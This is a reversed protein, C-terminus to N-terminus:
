RVTRSVEYWKNEGSVYTLTMAAVQGAGNGFTPAGASSFTCNTTLFTASWSNGLLVLMQGDYYGTALTLNIAPAGNGSVRILGIDPTVTSGSALNLQTTQVGMGRFQVSNVAAKVEISDQPYFGSKLRWNGNWTPLIQWENLRLVGDQSDMYFSNGKTTFYINNTNNDNHNPGFFGGSYVTNNRVIIGFQFREIYNSHVTEGVVSPDFDFGNGAPVGVTGTQSQLLNGIYSNGGGFRNKVCLDGVIKNKYIMNAQQGLSGDQDIGIAFHFGALGIENFEILHNYAGPVPTGTPDDSKLLIATNSGPNGALFRNHHIHAHAGYVNLCRQAGNGPRFLFGSVEVNSGAIRMLDFTQGNSTLLYAGLPSKAVLKMGSLSVLIPATIKYFSREFELTGATAGFSALAALIAATDDTVGDGVAGFDEVSVKARMKDQLWRKIAGAGAQIFGIVSSGASSVLYTIFGQVSTWHAGGTPDTASVSGAGSSVGDVTWITNDLSDKLVVKYSGDWFITAEGRADLVVPNTNPATGAADQYTVRPTSTGADYTYVKGGVLPVGAGNTFSQKGEPLLTAM